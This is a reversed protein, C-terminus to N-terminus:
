RRPQRAAQANEVTRRIGADQEPTVRIVTASGVLEGERVFSFRNRTGDYMYHDGSNAGPPPVVWIAGKSHALVRDPIRGEAVLGAVVSRTSLAIVEQGLSQYEEFTPWAGVMRLSDRRPLLGDREFM